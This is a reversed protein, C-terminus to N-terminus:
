LSGSWDKSFCVLLCTVFCHLHVTSRCKRLCGGTSLFICVSANYQRQNRRQSHGGEISRKGLGRGRGGARCDSPGLGRVSVHLRQSQMRGVVAIASSGVKHKSGWNIKKDEHTNWGGAGSATDNHVVGLTSLLNKLMSATRRCSLTGVWWVVYSVKSISANKFSLRM